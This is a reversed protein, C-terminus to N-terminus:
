FKSKGPLRAAYQNAASQQNRDSASSSESNRRGFLMNNYQEVLGGVKKGLALNKGVYYRSNEIIHFGHFDVATLYWFRM